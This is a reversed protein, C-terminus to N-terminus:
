ESVVEEPSLHGSAKRLMLETLKVDIQADIKASRASLWATQAELVNSATIVGERFGVNAYRLNEEAKEMNKTAMVLRKDAERVKLVSQSLQLEISERAKALQQAAIRAEAKAARVKHTGQGWHWIPVKLMVGVNWMGGFKNEFGNFSSPNTVLYNAVFALSPLYESRTLRIKQKSIQELLALSKLEPRNDLTYQLDTEAPVIATPLEEQGEDALTITEDLPLGITQCLLMRSLSLGDEVKALTMEAENVKVSVNLGDARTALGEKILKQVDNDLKTLLELYSEALRHKNALSVVQWYAQDTALIVDQQGTKHQWHAIEEAYRTIRNYAYIKGGVYLPQTLTLVGAYVNRTDTRLADVLHTGFANLGQSTQTAIQPMMSGILPALDPHQALISQIATTIYPNQGIATVLDTGLNQLKHKQEDSLLSVEKQNHLYTGTASLEPLYSTFAAKRTNTAANIKERSIALDRNHELALRRCENVSLVRQGYVSWLACALVGAIILRKM